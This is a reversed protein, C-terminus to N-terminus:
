WGIDTHVFDDGKYAVTAGSASACAHSFCDGLNLRAPHNVIKGFQQAADLTKTGIDGSIPVERAELDTIFQDVLSRATSFMDPTAPNDRGALRRAISLTAELKMIASVYYPGGQRELRDMLADADHERTIVAVAVSADIFVM